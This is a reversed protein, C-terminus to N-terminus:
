TRHQTPMGRIPKWQHCCGFAPSDCAHKPHPSAVRPPAFREIYAADRHGSIAVAITRLPASKVSGQSVRFWTLAYSFKFHTDYKRCPPSAVSRGAPAACGAEKPGTPCFELTRQAVHCCSVRRPFGRLPRQKYDLICCVYLCSCLRATRSHFPQKPWFFLRLSAVAPVAPIASCTPCCMWGFLLLAFLTNCRSPLDLSGIIGVVHRHARCANFSWQRQLM